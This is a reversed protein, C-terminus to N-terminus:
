KMCRTLLSKDALQPYNEVVTRIESQPFSTECEVSMSESKDSLAAILGKFKSKLNSRESFVNLANIFRMKLIPYGTARCVIFHRNLMMAKLPAFVNKFSDERKWYHNM